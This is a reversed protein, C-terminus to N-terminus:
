DCMRGSLFAAYRCPICAKGSGGAMGTRAVRFIPAGEIFEVHDDFATLGELLLPHACSSRSM